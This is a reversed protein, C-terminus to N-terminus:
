RRTWTPACGCADRPGVPPRADAELGRPLAVLPLARGGAGADQTVFAGTRGRARARRAARAGPRYPFAQFMCSKATARTCAAMARPSPRTARTWTSPLHARRARDGDERQVGAARDGPRQALHLRREVALPAFRTAASTRWPTRRDGGPARRRREGPPCPLRQRALRVVPCATSPAAAPRRGPKRVSRRGPPEQISTCTWRSSPTATRTWACAWSARRRCRTPRARSVVRQASPDIPHGNADVPVGDLSLSLTRRPPSCSRHFTDEDVMHLAGAEFLGREDEENGRSNTAVWEEYPLLQPSFIEGSSAPAGRRHARRRAVPRLARGPGLTVLADLSPLTADMFFVQSCVPNEEANGANACEGGNTTDGTYWGSHAGARMRRDSCTVMRQTRVVCM